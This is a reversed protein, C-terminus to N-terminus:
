HLSYMTRKCKFGGRKNSLVPVFSSKCDAIDDDPSEKRKVKRALWHHLPVTRILVQPMSLYMISIVEDREWHEHADNQLHSAYAFALSCLLSLSILYPMIDHLEFEFM